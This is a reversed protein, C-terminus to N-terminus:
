RGAADIWPNNALASNSAMLGAALLFAAIILNKM